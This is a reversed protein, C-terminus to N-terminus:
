RVHEKPSWFELSRVYASVLDPMAMGFRTGLRDMSSELVGGSAAVVESVDVLARLMVAAQPPVDLQSLDLHRPDVPEVSRAPLGRALGAEVCVAIAQGVPLGSTGATLWYDEDFASNAVCAAVADAVTSVPLIDMLNGPHAPFFPLRGRMLWESVHHVIQKRTSAGTVEDGVLNTPRVISLPRGCDRFIQEAGRKSELYPRVINGPPLAQPNAPDVAPVFATSVFVVSARAALALDAVRKAGDINVPRYAAPPRGWETAAASHVVVDTSAVLQGYSAADLGLRDAAIDCRIVRAGDPVAMMTGNGVACTLRTGTLRHAIAHGVVGSAGTVLVQATGSPM